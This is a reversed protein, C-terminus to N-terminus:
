ENTPTSVVSGHDAACRADTATGYTGTVRDPRARQQRAQAQEQGTAGAFGDDDLRPRRRIDLEPRDELQQGVRRGVILDLGQDVAITAGVHDDRRLAGLLDVVDDNRGITSDRPFQDPGRRRRRRDAGCEIRGAGQVHQQVLLV